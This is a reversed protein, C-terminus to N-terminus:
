WWQFFIGWGHVIAIPFFLAGAILFGWNGQHFCTVIHIVWGAFCAISIALGFLVGFIGGITDGM